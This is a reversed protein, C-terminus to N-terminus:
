FATPRWSELRFPGRKILAKGHHGTDTVEIELRDVHFELTLAPECDIALTDDAFQLWNVTYVGSAQDSLKRWSRVGRICVTTRILDKEYTRTIFGKKVLREPGSHLLRLCKITVEAATRDFEISDVDIAEDHLLGTVANM